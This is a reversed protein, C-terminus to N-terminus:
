GPSHALLGDQAPSDWGVAEDWRARAVCAGGAGNPDFVTATFNRRTRLLQRGLAKGLSGEDEALLAVLNGHQDFVQLPLTPTKCCADAPEDAVSSQWWTETSTLCRRPHIPAACQSAHQPTLPASGGAASAGAAGAAATTAAPPWVQYRNAQEFGVLM